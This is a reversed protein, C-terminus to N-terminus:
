GVGPTGSGDGSRGRKTLGALAEFPRHRTADGAPSRTQATAAEGASDEARGAEAGALAAPQQPCSEHRPVLPLALLLEDEILAILDLRAPLALVDDDLEEDLRAAEDEGPVFHVRREIRLPMTVPQLCRQCELVVDADIGLTIVVQPLGGRRPLQEGGARWRVAASGAFGDDGCRVAEAVRPLERLPLEGELRGGEACFAAVDLAHVRHRQRASRGM